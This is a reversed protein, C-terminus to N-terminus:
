NVAIKFDDIGDIPTIATNDSISYIKRTINNSSATAAVLAYGLSPLELKLVSNNIQVIKGERLMSSGRTVRVKETLSVSTKELRVSTFELLFSKIASVEEEKVVAPAGLWHVINRVGSIHTLVSLDEKAVFVFVYSTFLPEPLNKKKESFQRPQTNLPCYNEIKRRSLTEAVKKELRPDTNLIYWSKHINM